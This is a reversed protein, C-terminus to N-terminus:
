RVIRVRRTRGDGWHHRGTFRVVVTWAGARTVTATYRPFRGRAQVGRGDSSVTIRIAGSARRALHVTITLVSAHYGLTVNLHPNRASGGCRGNGRGIVQHDGRGNGLGNGTGADGSGDGAGVTYGNGQGNTSTPCPTAATTGVQLLLAPVALAAV